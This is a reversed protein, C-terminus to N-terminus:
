DGNEREEFIENEDKDNNKDEGFNIMYEDDEDKYLGEGNMKDNIWNGEWKTKEDWYFIGKGEKKNGVFEGDYKMGDEYYYVGKGNKEGNLYEGEYVLKGKDYFKGYNGKKGNEFYGIWVQDSNKFSYCGRGHPTAYDAEGIYIGDDTELKILGLRNTGEMPSLKLIENNLEFNNKEFFIKEYDIEEFPENNLIKEM